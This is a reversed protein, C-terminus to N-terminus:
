PEIEGINDNAVSIPGGPPWSSPVVEPPNGGTMVHELYRLLVRRLALTAPTVLRHFRLSPNAELMAQLVAVPEEAQLLELWTRTWRTPRWNADYGPKARMMSPIDWDLALTDDRLRQGADGRLSWDARQLSLYRFLRTSAEGRVSVRDMERPQRYQLGAESMHTRLSRPLAQDM